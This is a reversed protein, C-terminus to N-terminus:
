SALSSITCRYRQVLGLITARIDPQGDHQDSDGDVIKSKVADASLGQRVWADAAEDSLDLKKGNIEVFAALAILATAENGADFPKLKLFGPLFRAAQAGLDKSGGLAYQYFTAEELKVYNFHNVKKTVQLNIWLVDQVTLYHLAM